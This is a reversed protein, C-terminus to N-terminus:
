RRAMRRVALGGTAAMLGLGALYALQLGTFPATAPSANDPLDAADQAVAASALAADAKAAPAGDAGAAEDASGKAKAGGDRHRRVPRGVGPQRRPRRGCRNPRADAGLRGGLARESRAVRGACSRRRRAKAARVRARAPLSPAPAPAPLSPAPAPLSPAPAPAPAPAQVQPPAPLTPLAPTPLTPLQDTVGGM